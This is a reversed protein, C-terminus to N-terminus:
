DEILCNSKEDFWNYYIPLKYQMRLTALYAKEEINLPVVDVIILKVFPEKTSYHAYELLQGISERISNKANSYPKIEYIYREGNIRTMLDVQSRNIIIQERSVADKGYKKVLGNYIKLSIDNHTKNICIVKERSIYTSIGGQGKDHNGAIFKTDIIPSISIGTRKLIDEFIDIHEEIFLATEDILKTWDYHEIEDYLITKSYIWDDDQTTLSELLTKQDETLLNSNHQYDIKILLSGNNRVGLTFYVEQSKNNPFIRGWTYEKVKNTKGSVNWSKKFKKELSLTSIRCVEDIWYGTKDWLLPVEIKIQEKEINQTYDIGAFYQFRLLEHQTFFDKMQNNVSTAVLTTESTFL